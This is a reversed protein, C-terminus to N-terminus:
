LEPLQRAPVPFWRSKTPPGGSRSEQWGLCLGRQEVMSSRFVGVQLELGRFITQLSLTLSARLAWPSLLSPALSSHTKMWLELDKGGGLSQETKYISVM